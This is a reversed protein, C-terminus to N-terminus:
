MKGYLIEKEQGEEEIKHFNSRLMRKREVLNQVLVEIVVACRM